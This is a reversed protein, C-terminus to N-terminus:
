LEVSPKEMTNAAVPVQAETEVNLNEIESQRGGKGGFLVRLLLGM